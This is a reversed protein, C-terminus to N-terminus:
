LTSEEWLAGAAPQADILHQAADFDARGQYFRDILGQRVSELRDDSTLVVACGGFGAGTLRAGDAGSALAAEVLLDLETCSVGLQDRLSSHSEVMLRGFEPADDRRMAAVAAEVRSAESSVHGSAEGAVRAANFRERAAGSKQAKVMSHAALFRWHPPVPIHHVRVPRFEILSAHGPRSALSAAHDMGGGRTGVFQEGEPLVEMLEDFTANQGNARLLALTAAVILASSSALGAAPPLDSVIAADMGRGIGWRDGVAMAAARLYNEWDGVIAPELERTWEFSRRSTPWSLARIRRDARRRFALRIGRGIAIPLVPLGHYDIHEGILNVRGPARIVAAEGGPGFTQELLRCVDSPLAM